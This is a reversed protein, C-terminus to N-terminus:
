TISVIEVGNGRFQSELLGAAESLLDSDRAEVTVKLSYERRFFDPYSGILVEPFQEDVGRLIGAITGEDAHLFFEKLHLPIGQLLQKIHNFRHHFLQPVGPMIYINRFQVQGFSWGPIEVMESGEPVRAMLLHDDTCKEHYHERIAADLVPHQVVAADFAAAIAPITIDDHTPGIGGSTFVWTYTESFSKVTRGIEEFDDPIVAIRLLEIGIFNLEKCVFPSNSDSVKGSLIENGIVVMGATPPTKSKESM